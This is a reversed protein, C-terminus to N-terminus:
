GFLHIPEADPPEPERELFDGGGQTKRGGRVRAAAKGRWEDLYDALDEASARQLRKRWRDREAATSIVKARVGERMAEDELAKRLVPMDRTRGKLAEVARCLVDIQQEPDSGITIGAIGNWRRRLRAMMARSDGPASAREEEDDEDEEDDLDVEGVTAEGEEEAGEEEASEEETGEEEALEEETGEAQEDLEVQAEDESRRGAAKRKRLATMVGEPLVLGAESLRFGGHVGSRARLRTRTRQELAEILHRPVERREAMARAKLVSAGPTAGDYVMSYESLHGDYIWAFAKQRGTENGDADLIPYEVGPIHDCEISYLGFWGAFMDGGCISCRYEGGYFGVSVDTSLGTEIGRVMVSSNVRGPQYDPITYFCSIVLRITDEGSTQETFDGTLSRGWPTDGTDHSYLVGVGLRDEGGGAEAAFNRLTTEHMRTEYADLWDSSIKLPYFLPKNEARELSGGDYAIEKARALLADESYGAVMRGGRDIRKKDVIGRTPVVAFEDREGSPKGNAM